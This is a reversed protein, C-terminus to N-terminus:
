SAPKRGRVAWSMENVWVAEVGDLGSDRLLAMAESKTYYRAIRPIMHDFVIARLHRFAFRRIFALYQLRGGGSRLFIWLLATAPWSLAQVLGLPLRSLLAMRVPNLLHVIWGNNERGHLWILVSGGPKTARVLRAVAADPYELHHVVGIVFAVDFANEEAIEYISQRRVEVAPFSHLNARASALTRDDLDVALGGAAGYTMPWYSNRGIGCGADLFRVGRWDDPGFRPTWRRFQREHDPLIEDYRDWSYGVREPSGRDPAPETAGAAAAAALVGPPKGVRFVWLCYILFNMAPIVLWNLAIGLLYSKGLVDTVVYMGGIAVVFSAATTVAFRLPMLPDPEADLFTVRRHTVYGIPLVLIFAIVSAATPGAVRLGAVLVVVALSYVISIALGAFGYRVIRFLTRGLPGRAKDTVVTM